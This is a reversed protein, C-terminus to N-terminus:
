VVRSQRDKYRVLNTMANLIQRYMQEADHLAEEARQREISERSLDRNIVITERMRHRTVQVVYVLWGLLASIVVSVSVTFCLATAPVLRGPHLPQKASEIVICFQDIGVGITFIYPTFTMLGM